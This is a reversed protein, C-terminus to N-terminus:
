LFNLYHQSDNNERMATWHSFWGTHRRTRGVKSKSLYVYNEKPYVDINEKRYAQLIVNNMIEKLVVHRNAPDRKFTDVKICTFENIFRGLPLKIVRGDHEIRIVITYRLNSPNWVLGPCRYPTEHPIGDQLIGIVSVVINNLCCKEDPQPFDFM